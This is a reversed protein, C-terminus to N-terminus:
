VKVLDSIAGNLFTGFGPAPAGPTCACHGWTSDFPRFEAGPILSADRKAHEATFYMDSSSPMVITRATISGLAASLDGKYRDNASVDANQWTWLKCLLDNADWKLHDREWDMLLEEVSAFDLARYEGDNFFSSAYAWGAYCRGFARLGKEPPSTYRGNDWSRDTTLAARVGELFAYNHPSCQATACFPLLREVFDPFQTAWEYAQLGGMSWGIVLAERDVPCVADVLMKQMRVNDYVTVTPFDAGHFIGSVTSPSSSDSNGILCPVLICYRAPDLARDKGFYPRNSAQRGTFYTPFVVLNDGAANLNGYIEYSIAFEPVTVGSQLTFNQIIHQPM